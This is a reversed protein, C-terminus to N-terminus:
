SRDHGNCDASFGGMKQLVAFGPTFLRLSAGSIGPLSRGEFRLNVM